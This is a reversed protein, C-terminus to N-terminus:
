QDLEFVRCDDERAGAPPAVGPHLPLVMPIGDRRRRESAPYLPGLTLAGPMRWGEIRQLGRRRAWALACWFLDALGGEAGRRAGHERWRLTPPAAELLVYADLRGQNESVWFPAEEGGFRRRLDRKLLLQEWADRGREVRFKQGSVEERHLDAIADLDEPRGPRVGPSWGAPDVGAAVWAPERPWPAPLVTRCATESAPLARFGLRTWLGAGGEAVLLILDCGEARARDIAAGALRSAHGRGRAEPFTFVGDLRAIRIPRGDLVGPHRWSRLAAPVGGAEDSAVLFRGHERGWPSEMMTLNLALYDDLGRGRGWLGHTARLVRVMEDRSADRAQM